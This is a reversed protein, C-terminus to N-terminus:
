CSSHLEAVIADFEDDTPSRSDVVVFHGESDSNSEDSRPEFSESGSSSSEGDYKEKQGPVFGDALDDGSQDDSGDSESESESDVEVKQRKTDPQNELAKLRESVDCVIGDLKIFTDLVKGMGTAFKDLQLKLEENQRELELQALKLKENEQELDGQRVITTEINQAVVHLLDHDKTGPEFRNLFEKESDFEAKRKLSKTSNASNTSDQSDAEHEGFGPFTDNTDLSAMDFIRLRFYSGKSVILTWAARPPSFSREGCV